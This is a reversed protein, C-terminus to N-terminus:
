GLAGVWHGMSLSTLRRRAGPLVTTLSGGGGRTIGPFRKAVSITILGLLRYLCLTEHTAFHAGLRARLSTKACCHLKALPTGSINILYDCKRKLLMRRCRIRPNLLLVCIIIKSVCNLM